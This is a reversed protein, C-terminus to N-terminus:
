VSRLECQDKTFDKAIAIGTSFSLNKSFSKVLSQTPYGMEKTLMAIALSDSKPMAIALSLTFPGKTTYEQLQTSKRFMFSPIHKRM